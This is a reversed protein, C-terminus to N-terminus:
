PLTILSETTSAGKLNAVFSYRLGHISVRGVDVLITYLQTVATSDTAGGSYTWDGSMSMPGGTTAYQASIAGSANLISFGSAGLKPAYPTGIQTAVHFVISGFPVTSSEITINYVYEGAACGDMVFTDRAPCSGASPNGVSLEMGCVFAGCDAPYQPLHAVGALVLIALFVGLIFATGLITPTRHRGIWGPHRFSPSTASEPGPRLPKERRGDAPKPIGGGM